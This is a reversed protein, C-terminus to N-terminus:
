GHPVGGMPAAKEAQQRAPQVGQRPVLVGAALYAAVLDASFAGRAPDGKVFHGHDNTCNKAFVYLRNAPVAGKIAAPKRAAAATAPTTETGM